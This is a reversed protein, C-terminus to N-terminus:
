RISDDDNLGGMIITPRLNDLKEILAVLLKEKTDFVVPKPDTMAIGNFMGQWGKDADERLNLRVGGLMGAM